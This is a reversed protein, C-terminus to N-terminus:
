KQVPIYDLTKVIRQGDAGALFDIFEKVPGVAAGKTLVLLPRQFGYSGSLVNAETGAVGDLALVQIPSGKEAMGTATGLSAFTLANPQTVVAALAAKAGDVSKVTSGNGEGGKVKFSVTSGEDKGELKFHEVFADYTGHKSNSSVLVIPADSGGLEKWNKIKGTFVDVVQQTAIAKVSNNKHVVLAVGDIGIRVSQLDAFDAKEKDKLGRSAMGIQVEGKGAAQIGQGSGGAGVAFKVAANKKGFEKVAEDVIPKVTTSGAVTIQQADAARPLAFGMSLVLVFASLGCAVVARGVCKM